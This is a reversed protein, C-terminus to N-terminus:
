GLKGSTRAARVQELLETQRIALGQDIATLLEDWADDPSIEGTSARPYRRAVQAADKLAAKVAESQGFSFTSLRGRSRETHCM